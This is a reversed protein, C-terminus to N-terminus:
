NKIRKYRVWKKNLIKIYQVDAIEKFGVKRALNLNALNSIQTGGYVKRFGKEKLEKFVRYRLASGLGKGRYNKSVTIQDSWVENERLDRRLGILPICGEGLSVLNFGAVREGDLAVLCLGGAEIMSAVKDKLWEEMDEIQRIIGTDSKDIM